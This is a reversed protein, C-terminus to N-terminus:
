DSSYEGSGCKCGVGSGRSSSNCRSGASICFSICFDVFLLCLCICRCRLCTGVGFCIFSRDFSVCLCVLCICLRVFGCRGGLLLWQKESPLHTRGEKAQSSGIGVFDAQCCRPNEQRFDKRQM